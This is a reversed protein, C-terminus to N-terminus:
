DTIFLYKEKKSIYIKKIIKVLIVNFNIHERNMSIDRKIYFLYIFYILFLLYFKLKKRKEFYFWFTINYKFSKKLFIIIIINRLTCRAFSNNRAFLLNYIYLISIHKIELM